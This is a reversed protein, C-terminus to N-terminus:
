ARGLAQDLDTILEDVPEIGVSVRLLDDPVLSEPPEVAVRHEILSEVGGLSTAPIFLNTTTAVRRAADFGGAVRFSLMSGFGRSMQSVAITHGPDNALGPYRVVTVAPHSDLHQAIAQASSSARDVRLHLTRLGRMLLWAEFQGLIAGGLDRAACIENWRGSARATIVIGGTLDSHGNYAKTAAHFTLDAGLDIPRTTVPTVTADVALEAGAVHAVAAAARIDIVDWTPNVPTEIWVLDTTGPEVAARLADTDVADFLTLRIRGLRDLRRLWQQGGHYMVDPAVVHGGPEVSELVAAFGAMGSAFVKADVGSDLRAVLAELSAITPSGYRSYVYDGVPEYNDDRAFTTSLQLPPVIAGDRSDIFHGAQVAESERSSRTM